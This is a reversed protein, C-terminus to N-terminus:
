EVPVSWRFTGWEMVLRSPQADIRITFQEVPSDLTDVQMPVRAIDHRADYSTGWQGAERNVVLQVGDRTPLTWLTVTGRELPVGALRLPATTTLQTAANAGTRWVRDYPILGGLLERGRALPRSYDVVVTASGVRARATDRTSLARAVGRAREDAAFRDLLAVLDPVDAVRVVEQKYTTGEGSYSLMRGQEDLQAVGSGSLGTSSISVRHEGLRRVRAYGINGESWGEFFYQGIRTSDPLGAAAQFLLEFTGYVFANWPVTRAYLTGIRRELTDASTGRVLRLVGDHLEMEHHLFQEGAPANPIHTDMVWRTVSGDPALTAEWRRRVVVPSRGIAEGALRDGTRTMREVSTTDDGLTAVFGWTETPERGCAGALLLPLVLVAITIARM